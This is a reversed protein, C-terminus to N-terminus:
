VEAGGPPQSASKTGPADAGPGIRRAVRSLPHGKANLEWRHFWGFPPREVELGSARVAAAMGDIIALADEPPAPEGFLHAFPLLMIQHVKLKHALSQIERAGEDIVRAPATEDGEEANALVLLGEEIRMSPSSPTEVLPSRGKETITCTFSDVHFLLLRM